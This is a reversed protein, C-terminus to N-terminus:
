PYYRRLHEANWARPLHRGENDQLRYTGPRVEETIRYPGSWNPGLTGQSPDKENPLVKKLVWEGIRLSRTRVKQNYYKSTRRQHEAVRLRAVERKEEILDLDLLRAQINDEQTYCRVRLSPVGTEVPLVAETGFALSYPSEGTSTRPTTRYAWLVNPLEEAWAGKKKELKTKLLHKIIKNIAEVQGNAQPHAPSSFSHQVGYMACLDGFEKCDFQRGNDTIITHPIGYRCILNRWTFNVIKRATVQALPEAEAWKTFYDVAV